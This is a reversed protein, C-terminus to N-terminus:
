DLGVATAAPAGVARNGIVEYWGDLVLDAHNPATIKGRVFLHPKGTYKHVRLRGKHGFFAVEGHKQAVVAHEARHRTQTWEARHFITVHWTGYETETGRDISHGDELACRCLWATHGDVPRFFWEGQRPDDHFMGDPVLWDLADEATGLRSPVQVTWVHGDDWGTLRRHRDGKRRWLILPRDNDDTTRDIVRTTRSKSPM